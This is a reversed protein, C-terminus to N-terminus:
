ETARTGNDRRRGRIGYGGCRCGHLACLNVIQDHSPGASFRTIEERECIETAINYQRGLQKISILGSVDNQQRSVALFISRVRGAEQGNSTTLLM